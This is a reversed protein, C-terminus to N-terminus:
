KRKVSNYKIVNKGLKSFLAGIKDCVIKISPAIM